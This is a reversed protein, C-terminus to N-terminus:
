SVHERRYMPFCASLSVLLEPILMSKTLGLHGNRYVTATVFGNMTAGVLAAAIQFARMVVLWSSLEWAM